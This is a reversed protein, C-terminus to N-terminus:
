AAKDDVSLTDVSENYQTISSESLLENVWQSLTPYMAIGLAAILIVSALIPLIKNKM